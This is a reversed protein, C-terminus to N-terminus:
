SYSYTKETATTYVYGPLVNIKDHTKTAANGNGYVVTEGYGYTVNVLDCNTFTYVDGAYASNISADYINCNDFFYTTKQDLTSYALKL